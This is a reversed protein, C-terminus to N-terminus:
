CMCPAQLGICVTILMVLYMCYTAILEIYSVYWMCEIYLGISVTGLMVMYM